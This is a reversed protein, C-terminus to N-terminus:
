IGTMLFRGATTSAATLAKLSIRTGASISLPYGVSSGGAPVYIRDVELGAAGTAIITDVGATDSVFLNGVANATSAILQLYATNTLPAPGTYTLAAVISTTSSAPTTSLGGNAAVTPFKPRLVNFSAGVAPAASADEALTITNATIAQVRYEKTNLAGSTFSLVDGVLAAHATAQIVRKTSTSTVTAGSTIVQVFTHAIVDLGFQGERVPSVTGYDPLGASSKFRDSFGKLTVSNGEGEDHPARPPHVAPGVTVPQM